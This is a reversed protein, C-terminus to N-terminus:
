LGIAPKSLSILPTGDARTSGKRGAHGLQFAIKADTHTHVFDVVRKWANMQEDNWMGPCGPTIRANPSVCTMETVVM